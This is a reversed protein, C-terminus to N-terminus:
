QEHKSFVGDPSGILFMRTGYEGALAITVAPRWFGSTRLSEQTAVDALSAVRPLEIRATQPAKDYNQLLLLGTPVETANRELYIWKVNANDCGIPAKASWYNIVSVQPTGYGFKRFADDYKAALDQFSKPWAAWNRV